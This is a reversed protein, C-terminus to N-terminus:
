QKLVELAARVRTDYDARATELKAASAQVGVTLIALDPKIKVEANGTVTVLPPAPAVQAFM